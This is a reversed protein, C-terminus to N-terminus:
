RECKFANEKIHNFQALREDIEKRTKEDVTLDVTDKRRGRRLVPSGRGGSSGDREPSSSSSRKRGRMKELVERDLALPELQVM